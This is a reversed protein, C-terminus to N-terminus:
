IGFVITLDRCKSPEARSFLQALLVTGLSIVGITLLVSHLTGLWRIANLHLAPIDSRSSAVHHSASTAVSFLLIGTLTSVALVSLTAITAVHGSAGSPLKELAYAFAAAALALTYKNFDILSEINM